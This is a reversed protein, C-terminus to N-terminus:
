GFQLSGLNRPLTVFPATKNKILRSHQNRPIFGQRLGVMAVVGSFGNALNPSYGEEFRQHEIQLQSNSISASPPVSPSM